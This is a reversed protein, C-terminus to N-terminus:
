PVALDLQAPQPRVLPRVWVILRAGYEDPEMREQTGKWVWRDNTYVTGQLADGMVKEANYLDICRVDDDWWAGFKRQRALYDLPRHPYLRYALEVRQDFPERIGAAKAIWRCETIYADAEHTRHRVTMWGNTRQLQKNAALKDPDTVQVMRDRWYANASIPYPLRLVITM